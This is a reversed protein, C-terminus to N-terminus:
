HPGPHNMDLNSIYMYSFLLVSWVKYYRVQPLWLARPISSNHLTLMSAHYFLLTTHSVISYRLTLMAIIVTIVIIVIHQM